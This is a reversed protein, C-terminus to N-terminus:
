PLTPTVMQLGHVLAVSLEWQKDRGLCGSPQAPLRQKEITVPWRCDIVTDHRFGEATGVSVEFKRLPRGRRRDTSAIVVPVEAESASNPGGRLVVVYKQRIVPQRGPNNRDPLPIAVLYVEGREM